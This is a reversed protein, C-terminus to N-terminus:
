SFWITCIALSGLLWTATILNARFFRSFSFIDAQGWKKWELPLLTEDNEIDFYNKDFCHLLKNIKAVVKANRNGLKRERNQWSISYFVLLLVTVTAITKGIIGFQLWLIKESQKVILLLGMLSLFITGSWTFIKFERDRRFMLEQMQDKHFHFMIELNKENKKEKIEHKDMINEHKTRKKSAWIM